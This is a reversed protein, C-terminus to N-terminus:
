AAKKRGHTLKDLESRLQENETELSTVRTKLKPIEANETELSGVRAKLRAIETDKQTLASELERVRTELNDQCEELKRNDEAQKAAILQYKGAVDALDIRRSAILAIFGPIAAVLVTIVYPLLTEM